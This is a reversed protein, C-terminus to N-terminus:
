RRSRICVHTPDWSSGESGIELVVAAVKVQWIWVLNGDSDLQLMMLDWGGANSSNWSGDTLGAIVIGGSELVAVAFGADDLSTGGQISLLSFTM